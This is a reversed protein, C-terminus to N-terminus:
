LPLEVVKDAPKPSEVTVIEKSKEISPLFSKGIIKEGDIWLLELDMLTNKNWFTRIEKNPFIFIMGDVGELKRYFMLGREWKAPTDAVLLNLNKNQLKYSIIEFDKFKVERQQYKILSYLGLLILIGIILSLLLKKM